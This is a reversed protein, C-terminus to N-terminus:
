SKTATNIAEKEEDSLQYKSQGNEIPKAYVRNGERGYLSTVVFGNGRGDLLAISFSQDGGVEGFPNFRVMGLKQFVLPNKEELVKLRVSVDQIAADSKRLIELVEQINEPEKKAKKFLNM